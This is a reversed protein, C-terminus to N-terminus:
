LGVQFNVLLQHPAASGNVPVLWNVQVGAASTPWANYGLVVQDDAVVAAPARYRDWRVLLQSASGVMRGVTAYHGAADSEPEDVPDWEAGIVEFALLLRDTEWRGDLGWVVGDGLFSSPMARGAIAADRGVGVHAAASLTGGGLEMATGELRIVGLMSENVTPARSGTFGGASWLMHEGSAGGMQLGMQRNPSLADVVRSLNVFDISGAYTLLERSFPTKFRGVSVHFTNSKSWGVRADLLAPSAAFDTQLLYDFGHDLRGLVSLRAAAVSTSAKQGDLGPDVVAQLLFGVQMGPQGFVARVQEILPEPADQAAAQTAAVGLLGPVLAAALIGRIVNATWM